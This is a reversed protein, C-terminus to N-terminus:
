VLTDNLRRDLISPRVENFVPISFCFESGKGPASTVRIRGGHAEVIGKSIYLGLGVGGKRARRPQWYRDFIHPLTESDIGPGTDHVCVEIFGKTAPHARLQIADGPRTFKVANGVLNSIVQDLREPEAAVRPLVSDVELTFMVRKEAALRKFMETANKLVSNIDTSRPHVDFTGSEIKALDLLDRILSEMRRSANEILTVLEAVETRSTIEDGLEEKLLDVSGSILHLPNRLDHSVVAVVEERAAVAKEMSEYASAKDLALAALTGAEQAMELDQVRYRRAGSFEFFGWVGLVRENVRLPVLMYSKLHTLLLRKHEPHQVLSDITAEDVVPVLVSRGTEFVNLVSQETSRRPEYTIVLNRLAEEQISPSIAQALRRLTGSEERIFVLSVDAVQPVALHAIQDLATQLTHPAVLTQGTRAIFARRKESEHAESVDVNVVLGGTIQGEPDRLPVASNLMTKRTGDFSAIEILQNFFSRGEKLAHALAWDKPAIEQETDAWWGRFKSFPVEQLAPAQGWIEHVARNTRVVRGEKDTFWVGVPLSDIVLSLLNESELLKSHVDQRVLDSYHLAIFARGALLTLASFSVLTILASALNVAILGSNRLPLILLAILPPLGLFTFLLSRAMQGGSTKAVFVFSLGEGPSLFFISVSLLLLIIGAVIALGKLGTGQAYPSYLLNAGFLFGTLTLIPVFALALSLWSLSFERWKSGRQLLIIASGLILFCFSTEPSIRGPYRYHTAQRVFLRDIGLDIGSIYEFLTLAGLCFVVAGLIQSTSFRLPRSEPNDDWMLLMLATAAMMLGLSTNPVVPASEPIVQTLSPVSFLGGLFSLCALLFAAVASAKAIIRFREVLSASNM